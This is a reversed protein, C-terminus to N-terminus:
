WGRVMTPGQTYHFPNTKYLSSTGPARATSCRGGGVMRPHTDLCLTSEFFLTVFRSAADFVDRGSAPCRHTSPLLHNRGSARQITINASQVFEVNHWRHKYLFLHLSFFISRLPISDTQSFLVRVEKVHHCNKEFFHRDPGAWRMRGRLFYYSVWRGGIVFGIQSIAAMFVSGFRRSETM